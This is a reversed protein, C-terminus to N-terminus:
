NIILENLNIQKNNKSRSTRSPPSFKEEPCSWNIFIARAARLFDEKITKSSAVLARSEDVSFDKSCVAATTKLSLVTIM